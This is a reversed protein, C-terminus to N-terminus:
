ISKKHKKSQNKQMWASFIDQFYKLTDRQNQRKQLSMSNLDPTAYVVVM